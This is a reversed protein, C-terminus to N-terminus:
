LALMVVGACLVGIKLSTGDRFTFVIPDDSMDGRHTIMWIRSIWYLMLPCLLWIVEPRSYLVQVTPSNIYLALVLVAIYGSALGAALLVFLDSVQYGRGWSKDHGESQLTLLETYRKVLALSLFIFISFALLWFYPMTPYAASGAIIRLTYLVALALVDLMAYNKLKFSYGLTVGYYLALTVAFNPPLMAAIAGAGILLVPVMVLGHVAPLTGSAFPRIRKRPHQRDATLDLLDNFLYASSATLCFAVFALITNLLAGNELLRHGAILPIFVLINKVWQHPRLAWVYALLGSPPENFVHELKAIRQVNKRVGAKANVVIATRAHQWIILDVRNNGAYDFGKEGFREILYQLKKRGSLNTPYETAIVEDFIGLHGAVAEAHRRHAATALVLKIGRTRKARLFALFETQYPLTSADIELREAIQQKLYAKGRMLWWPVLFLWWLSQKILALFSEVLLDTKILTGDLDVAIPVSQEDSTIATSTYSPM